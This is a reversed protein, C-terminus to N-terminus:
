PKLPLAKSSIPRKYGYTSSVSQRYCLKSKKLFPVNETALQQMLPYAMPSKL